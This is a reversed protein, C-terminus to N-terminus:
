FYAELLALPDDGESRQGYCQLADLITTILKMPPLQLSITLAYLQERSPQVRAHEIDLIERTTLGTNNALQTISVSLWQRQARLTLGITKNIISTPNMTNNKGTSNIPKIPTHPYKGRVALQNAQKLPQTKLNFTM